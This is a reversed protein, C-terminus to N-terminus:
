WVAVTVDKSADRWDSGRPVLLDAGRVRNHTEPDAGRPDEGATVADVAELLQKRATRIALDTSGLAEEERHVIRGMGTQIAFDQTNIGEIGTFTRTRQAERDIGFDNAASLKLWHSDPVYHLDSSCM